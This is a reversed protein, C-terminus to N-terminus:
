HLLLIILADEMDQAQQRAIVEARRRQRGAAIEADLAALQRLLPAVAM